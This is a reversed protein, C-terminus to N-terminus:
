EEDDFDFTIREGCYNCFISREDIAAGCKPCIRKSKAYNIENTIEEIKENLESIRDFINKENDPLSESNKFRFYYEKGLAAYLKNRNTKLSSLNFRLKELSVIEGTKKYAIEFANKAKDFANDFFKKEM